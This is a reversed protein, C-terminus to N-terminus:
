AAWDAWVAPRNVLHVTSAAIKLKLLTLLSGGRATRLVSSRVSSYETSSLPSSVQGAQCPLTAALTQGLGRQVGLTRAEQNFLLLQRSVSLVPSVM